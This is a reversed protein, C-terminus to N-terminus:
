TLLAAFTYKNADICCGTIYPKFREDATLLEKPAESFPLLM